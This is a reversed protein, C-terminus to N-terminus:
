KIFKPDCWLVEDNEISGLPNIILELKKVNKINVGIPIIVSANTIIGSNFLKKGDANIQVEVKGKSNGIRLLTEFRNFNDDIFLISKADIRSTPKISLGKTYIINGAKIPKRGLTNGYTIICFHEKLNKIDALYVCKEKPKNFSLTGDLVKRYQKGFFRSLADINQSPMGDLIPRLKWMVVSPFGINVSQKSFIIEDLNEKNRDTIILLKANEALFKSAKAKIKIKNIKYSNNAIYDINDMPYFKTFYLWPSNDYLVSSDLYVKQNHSENTVLNLVKKWPAKDWNEYYAKVMPKKSVINYFVGSILLALIISLMPILKNDFQTDHKWFWSVIKLFLKSIIESINVFSYSLGIFIFPLVYIVYRSKFIVGTRQSFIWGQLLIIGAFIICLWKLTAYKKIKIFFGILLITIIYYLLWNQNLFYHRICFFDMLMNVLIEKSNFKGLGGQDYLQKNQMQQIIGLHKYLFYVLPVCIFQVTGLWVINIWKKKNFINVIFLSLSVGFVVLVFFINVTFGFLVSLILFIAKLFTPKQVVGVCSIAYVLTAFCLLSYPRIELSYYIHFPSIALLVAAIIGVRKNSIKATLFYILPVSIVGPILPALKVAWEKVGFLQMLWHLLLYDAPPQTVLSSLNIVEKISRTPLSYWVQLSEDMWLSHTTIFYYRIFAAILTILLIAVGFFQHKPKNEINNM